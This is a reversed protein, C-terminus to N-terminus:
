RCTQKKTTSVGQLADRDGRTKRLLQTKILGDSAFDETRWKLKDLFLYVQGEYAEAIIRLDDLSRKVAYGRNQRYSLCFRYPHSPTYRYNGSAGKSLSEQLKKM